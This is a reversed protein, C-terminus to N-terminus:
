PRPVRLFATAGPSDDEPPAPELPPEPPPGLEAAEPEDPIPAGKEDWWAGRRGKKEPAPPPAARKPPPAAAPAEDPLSVQLGQRPSLQVEVTETGAEAAEDERRNGTILTSNAPDSPSAPRRPASM